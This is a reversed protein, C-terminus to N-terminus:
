NKAVQAYYYSPITFPNTELQKLILPDVFHTDPIQDNKFVTLTSIPRNVVSERYGMQPMMPKNTTKNISIVGIQDIDPALTVNAGMPKRYVSTKKENLDANYANEYSVPKQEASAFASPIYKNEVTTEKMTPRAYKPETLYGLGKGQADNSAQGVYSHLSMEKNTTKLPTRNFTAAQGQGESTASLYTQYPIVVTSEKTTTRMTDQLPVQGQSQGVALLHTNHPQTVTTEKLTARATDQYPTKVAQGDSGIFTHYPIVVTGEKTTTKATDQYPANVAQQSSSMYTQHPIIVTSERTTTRASDQLPTTVTKGSSGLMTHYPITVTTEKTTPRLTDQLPVTSREYSPGLMTHYPISVTTEKITPKMTDQLSTTRAEYPSNVQM